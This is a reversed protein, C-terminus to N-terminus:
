SPRGAGAWESQYYSTNISSVKVPEGSNSAHVMKGGGAYIGVHHVPSGFFLLDGPQIQSRSVAPVSQQQQQSSHPLSAGGQRWAMMTLGSCDFSDPGEGGWKYPKGVQAYAYDLVAGARGSVPPPDVNSRTRSTDTQAAQLRDLLQKQEALASVITEKQERLKQAITQSKKTAKAAIKKQSALQERARMFADIRNEDQGSMQDLSTAKDILEQPSKSSLLQAVDTGGGGIYTSAARGSVASRLREVADAQKKTRKNLAKLQKKSSALKTKAATFEETVKEVKVGLSRVKKQVEDMDPEASATHPAVVVLPVLLAFAALM